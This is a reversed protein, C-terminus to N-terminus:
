VKRVGGLGRSHLIGLERTRRSVAFSMVGYLGIAALLLALLGFVGLLIAGM